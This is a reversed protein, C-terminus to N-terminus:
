SPVEEGRRAAVLTQRAACDLEVGVRGCDDAALDLDQAQDRLGAARAEDALMRVARAVNQAKRSLDSAPVVQSTKLLSM